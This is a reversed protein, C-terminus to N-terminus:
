SKLKSSEPQGDHAALPMGFSGVAPHAERGPVQSPQEEQSRTTTHPRTVCATHSSARQIEKGETLCSVINQLADAGDAQIGSHLGGRM